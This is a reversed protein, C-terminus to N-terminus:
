PTAPRSSDVKPLNSAIQGIVSAAPLVKIQRRPYILNQWVWNHHRVVSVADVHPRDGTTHGDEVVVIEYDRSAAARVTTDVCFDTACGTVILQTADHKHLIDSLDTEYFADCARKHVVMDGNQRELSALIRWGDTGRELPDGQPGDHQIFIVMGGAQRVVGALANIRGVVGEADHRPTEKGFLGAQMDIVLLVIM